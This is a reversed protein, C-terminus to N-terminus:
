DPTHRKTWPQQGSCLEALEGDLLDEARRHCQAARARFSESDFM